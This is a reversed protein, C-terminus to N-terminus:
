HTLKGRHHSSVLWVRSAHQCLKSKYSKVLLPPATLHKGPPLCRESSWLWGGAQGCPFGEHSHGERQSVLPPSPNHDWNRQRHGLAVILPATCLLLQALSTVTHDKHSDSVHQQRMPRKPRNRPKILTFFTTTPGLPPNCDYSLEKLYIFITLCPCYQSLNASFPIPKVTASAPPSSPGPGPICKSGTNPTPGSSKRKDQVTLSMWLGLPTLQHTPPSTQQQSGQLQYPGACTSAM